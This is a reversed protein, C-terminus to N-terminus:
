HRQRPMSSYLSQDHNDMNGLKKDSYCYEAQSVLTRKYQILQALVIIQGDIPLIPRYNKAFIGIIHNVDAVLDPDKSKNYVAKIIAGFFITDREDKIFDRIHWPLILDIFFIYMSLLATASRSIGAKCHVLVNKINCEPIGSQPPSYHSVFDQYYRAADREITNHNFFSTVKNCLIKFKSQQIHALKSEDIPIELLKTRLAKYEPARIRPLCALVESMIYQAALLTHFPRMTHVDPFQILGVTVGHHIWDSPLVKIENNFVRQPVAKEEITLVSSVGDRILDQIFVKTDAAHENTSSVLPFSSLRLPGPVKSACKMKKVSLALETGMVLRAMGAREKPGIQFKVEAPTKENMEFPNLPLRQEMKNKPVLRYKSKIKFLNQNPQVTVLQTHERMVTLLSPYRTEPPNPGNVKYEPNLYKVVKIRDVESFYHKNFIWSIGELNFHNIIKTVINILQRANKYDFQPRRFVYNIQEDLTPLSEPIVSLDFGENGYRKSSKRKFKTIFQDVSDQTRNEDPSMETYCAHVLTQYAQGFLVSGDNLHTLLSLAAHLINFEGEPINEKYLTAPM